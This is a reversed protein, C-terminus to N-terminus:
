PKRVSAQIDDKEWKQVLRKYEDYATGGRWNLVLQAVEFKRDLWIDPTAGEYMWRLLRQCNRVGKYIVQFTDTVGRQNHVRELRGKIGLTGLITTRVWEMLEREGSFTVRPRPRPKWAPNEYHKELVVYVSGDSDYLGRIFHSVLSFPVPPSGFMANKLDDYLKKSYIALSAFYGGCNNKGIYIKPEIGLFKAFKHLHHLDSIQLALGVVYSNSWRCGKYIRQIKCVIGDGVMFGLWYAKEPADIIEFANEYVMM